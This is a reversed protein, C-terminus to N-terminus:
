SRRPRSRWSWSLLSRGGCRRCKKAFSAVMPQNDALPRLPRPPETKPRLKRKHLEAIKCLQSRMPKPLEDPRARGQFKRQISIKKMSLAAFQRRFHKAALPNKKKKSRRQRSRKPKKKKRKRQSPETRLNKRIM